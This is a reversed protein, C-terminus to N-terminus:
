RVQGRNEKKVRENAGVVGTVRDGKLEEVRTRRERGKSGNGSRAGL